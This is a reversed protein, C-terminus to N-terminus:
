GAAQLLLRLPNRPLFRDRADDPTEQYSPLNVTPKMEVPRQWARLSVISESPYPPGLQPPIPRGASFRGNQRGNLVSTKDGSQLNMHGRASNLVLSQNPLPGADRGGLPAHLRLPEPPHPLREDRRQWHPQELPGAQQRALRQGDVAQQPLLVD